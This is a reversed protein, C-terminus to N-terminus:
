STGIVRAQSYCFMPVCRPMDTGTYEDCDCFVDCDDFVQSFDSIEREFDILSSSTWFNPKKWWPLPHKTTAPDRTDRVLTGRLPRNSSAAHYARYM